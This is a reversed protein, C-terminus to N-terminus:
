HDQYRLFAKDQGVKMLEVQEPSQETGSPQHQRVSSKTEPVSDSDTMEKDSSILELQQPGAVLSELERNYLSKLVYSNWKNGPMNLMHQISTVVLAPKASQQYFKIVAHCCKMANYNSVGKSREFDLRRLCFEYVRPHCAKAISLLAEEDRLLNDNAIIQQHAVPRHQPDITKGPKHDQRIHRAIKKHEFYVIVFDSTLGVQVEKGAVTYPVSYYHGEISILYSRPVKYTRTEGIFEPITALHRSAPLEYNNFWYTRTEDSCKRFPGQNIETEILQQLAESHQKLTKPKYFLSAKGRLLDQILRVGGYEVASKSQGRYCPAADVCIGMSNMFSEFHQNYVAEQGRRHDTVFGRFNDVKVFEPVFNGVHRIGDAFVQCAEATTQATVFGGFVYYSAPWVMVFVYCRLEGNLTVVKYDSGTFDVQVYQAWPYDWSLYLEEEPIGDCLLGIEQRVRRYFYAQSFARHGEKVAKKRYNNYLDQLSTHIEIREKALAEFDPILCQQSNLSGPKMHESPKIRPYCHKVLEAESMSTFNLDDTNGSMAVNNLVRVVTSPSHNVRKAIQRVSYKQSLGLQVILKLEWESLLRKDKTKKM